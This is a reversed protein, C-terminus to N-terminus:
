IFLKIKCFLRCTSCYLEICCQVHNDVFIHTHHSHVSLTCGFSFLGVQNTLENKKPQWKPRTRHRGNPNTKKRQSFQFHMLISVSVFAVVTGNQRRVRHREQSAQSRRAHGDQGVQVDMSADKGIPDPVQVSEEVSSRHQLFSFM